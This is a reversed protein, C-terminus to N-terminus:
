FKVGFLALIFERGTQSWRKDYYTHGSPSIDQKITNDAGTYSGAFNSNDIELQELMTKIDRMVDAHNKGTLEAIDRSSMTLKQNTIQLM